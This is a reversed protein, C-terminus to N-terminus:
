ARFAVVVTLCRQAYDTDIRAYRLGGSAQAVMPGCVTGGSASMRPCGDNVPALLKGGSFLQGFM